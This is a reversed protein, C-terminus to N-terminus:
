KGFESQANFDDLNGYKYQLDVIRGLDEAHYLVRDEEAAVLANYSIDIVYFEGNDLGVAIEDRPDGNEPTYSYREMDVVTTGAPFTFYPTIRTMTERKEQYYLQNGEAFFLYVSGDLCYVTNDSVYNNGAFLEEKGNVIDLTLNPVDTNASFTQYYYSGDKKIIQVFTRTSTGGMYSDCYMIETEEGLNDLPTFEAANGGDPDMSAYLIDGTNAQPEDVVAVIRHNLRDYMYIYGLSECYYMWDIQVNNIYPYPIWTTMFLPDVNNRSHYVNGDVGLVFEIRNGYAVQKPEFGAPYGGDFEEEITLAKSFDLGDLEVAGSSQLVVIADSEDSFHRGLRLPGTGLEDPAHRETYIDRFLTFPYTVGNEVSERERMYHLVSKGDQEALVLWGGQFAPVTNLDIQVSTLAGTPVHEVVFTTMYWAIETFTYHLNKETSITDSWEGQIDSVWAYAFETSDADGYDIDPTIVYEEGLPVYWDSWVNSITVTKLEAYDYNGDDDICSYLMLIAVICGLIYKITNMIM